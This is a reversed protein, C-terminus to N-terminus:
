IEEELTYPDVDEKYYFEQNAAADFSNYRQTPENATKMQKNIAITFFYLIYGNCLVDPIPYYFWPYLVDDVHEGLGTGDKTLTGLTWLVVQMMFFFCVIAGVRFVRKGTDKLYGYNGLRIQLQRGMTMFMAGLVFHGVSLVVVYGEEARVESFAGIRFLLYATYVVVNGVLCLVVRPVETMHESSNEAYMIISWSLLYVSLASFNALDAVSSFVSRHVGASPDTANEARLLCWIFRGVMAVTEFVLFIVPYKGREAIRFLRFQLLLLFIYYFALPIYFVFAILFWIAAKESDAPTPNM